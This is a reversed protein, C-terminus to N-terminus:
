GAGLITTGLVNEIRFRALILRARKTDGSIEYLQAALDKAAKIGGYPKWFSVEGCNHQERHQVQSLPVTWKDSPKKSTSGDTGHRIHAAEVKQSRGTVCCPLTRIWILHKEDEEPGKIGYTLQSKDVPVHKKPLRRHRM